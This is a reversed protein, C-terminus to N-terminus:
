LVLLAEFSGPGAVTSLADNISCNVNVEQIAKLSLRLGYVHKELKM